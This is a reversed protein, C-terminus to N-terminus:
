SPRKRERKSPPATVDRNKQNMVKNQHKAAGRIVSSKFDDGVKENIAGEFARLLRLPVTKVKSISGKQSAMVGAPNKGRGVESAPAEKDFERASSNEAFRVRGKSPNRCDPYEGKTKTLIDPTGLPSLFRPSSSLSSRSSASTSQPSPANRRNIIPSLPHKRISVVSSTAQKRTERTPPGPNREANVGVPVRPFKQTSVFRNVAPNTKGLGARSAKTPSHPNNINPFSGSELSVM